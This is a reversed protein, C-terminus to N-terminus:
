CGSGESAGVLARRADRQQHDSEQEPHVKDVGDDAVEKSLAYYADIDCVGHRSQVTVILRM